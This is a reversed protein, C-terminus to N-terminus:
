QDSFLEVDEMDFGTKSLLSANYAGNHNRLGILRDIISRQREVRGGYGRPITAPNPSLLWSVNLKGEFYINILIM